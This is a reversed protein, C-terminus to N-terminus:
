GAAQSKKSKNQDLFEDQSGHRQRAMEFRRKADSIYDGFELNQTERFTSGIRQFLKKLILREIVSSAGGLAKRLGLVFEGPKDPIEERQISHMTMLYQYVAQRPQDGLVSLSDDIADLLLESFLHDKPNM